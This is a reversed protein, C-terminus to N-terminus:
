APPVRPRPSRAPRSWPDSTSSFRRGFGGGAMQVHVVVQEPKLGLVRAAAGADLGACQSGIWLEARDESLAVTCNSAGDGRPRSVSVRVRSGTAATGHWRRWTPMSSARAPRGALERYQALQRESDVKEVASTDWELKLAERGQTAQWYGDAVVAVGEAGGDLPVRFVARVGENCAGRQRGGIGSPRRVGAAVVILQGPLRTDIGFNQRGSSKAPADLRQTPRGIIRFDKRHKLTVKEPVPLAMAAQALEGYGLKRGGPGHATSNRYYRWVAHLDCM